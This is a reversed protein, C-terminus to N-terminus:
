FSQDLAAHAGGVAGAAGQLQSQEGSFLFIGGFGGFEQSLQGSIQPEQGVDGAEVLDDDDDAIGQEVVAQLFFRELDVAEDLILFGDESQM